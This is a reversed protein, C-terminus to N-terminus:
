ITPEYVRGIFLYVPLVTGGYDYFLLSKRGSPGNMRPMIGRGGAPTRARDYRRANHRGSTRIHYSEDHDRDDHPRAKKQRSLAPEPVRSM